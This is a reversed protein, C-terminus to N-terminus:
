RPQQQWFCSSHIGQLKRTLESDQAPLMKQQSHSKLTNQNHCSLLHAQLCLWHQKM